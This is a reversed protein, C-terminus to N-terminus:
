RSVRRGCERIRAPWALIDRHGVRVSLAGDRLTAQRRVAWAQVMRAASPDQESAAAAAGAILAALMARADGPVVWDSAVSRVEFGRRRFASAAQVPAVPGLAQGFGKHRRQHAAFLRGVSGDDADGPSWDVRGDVVLPAYFPLRAAALAAALRAVWGASVLDLFAFATVGDAARFLDALDVSLSRRRAQVISRGCGRDALAQGLLAGDADILTWHARGRLQPDLARRGAGTGAGLDVVRPGPPLLRAFTSALTSSRAATDFPARLSLWDASFGSM